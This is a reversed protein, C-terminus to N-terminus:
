AGGGAVSNLCQTTLTVGRRHSGGEWAMSISVDFLTVRLPQPPKPDEPDGRLVVTSGAPRVQSSWAFGGGDDGSKAGPQLTTGHCLAALRSQARAVAEDTRAAARGTELGQLGGSFLVSLAMAAIVFAVLIELLTFGAERRM